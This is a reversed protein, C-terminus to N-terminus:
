AGRGGTPGDQVVEPEVRVVHDLAGQRHQVALADLLRPHLPVKRVSSPPRAVHCGAVRERCSLSRRPRRRPPSSRARSAPSPRAAGAGRRSRPPRRSRSGSSRGPRWRRQRSRRRGSRRGRRGGAGVGRRDELPQGEVVDAPGGVLQAPGMVLGGGAASRSRRRRPPEPGRGRCRDLGPKLRGPQEVQEARGLTMILIGAVASPSGAMRAEIAAPMLTLTVSIKEMARYRCTTLGAREPRPFRAALPSSRWGFHRAHGREEYLSGRRCASRGAQQLLPDLLAAGVGLEGLGGM